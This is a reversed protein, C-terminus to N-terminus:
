LNICFVSVRIKIKNKDKHVDRSM